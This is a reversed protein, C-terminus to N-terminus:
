RVRSWASWFMKLASNLMCNFSLLPKKGYLWLTTCTILTPVKVALHWVHKSVCNRLLSHLYYKENFFFPCSRYYDGPWTFRLSYILTFIVKKTTIKLVICGINWLSADGTLRANDYVVYVVYLKGRLFNREAGLALEIIRKKGIRKELIYIKTM